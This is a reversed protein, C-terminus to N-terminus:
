MEGSNEQIMLQILEQYASIMNGTLANMFAETSYDIKVEDGEYTYSVEVKTKITDATAIYNFIFDGFNDVNLGEENMAARFMNSLNPVTIEYTIYENTIKKVKISVREMITAIVGENESESDQFFSSLEEDAVFDETGLLIQEIEMMNQNEIANVIKQAETEINENDGCSVLTFISLVGIILTVIKVFIWKKKSYM